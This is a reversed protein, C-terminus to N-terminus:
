IWRLDKRMKLLGLFLGISFALCLGISGFILLDVFGKVVLGAILHRGNHTIPVDSYLLEEFVGRALQAFVINMMGVGALSGFWCLRSRFFLGLASVFWIFPVVAFTIDRFTLAGHPNQPPPSPDTPGHCWSDPVIICLVFFSAALLNAICFMLFIINFRAFM